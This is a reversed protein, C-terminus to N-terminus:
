RQVETLFANKEEQSMSRLNVICSYCLNIVKGNRLQFGLMSPIGNITGGLTRCGCIHCKPSMTINKM